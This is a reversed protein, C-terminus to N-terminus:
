SGLHPEPARSCWGLTKEHLLCGHDRTLEQGVVVEGGNELAWAWATVVTRSCSHWRTSSWAVSAMIDASPLWRLPWTGTKQTCRALASGLCGSTRCSFPVRPLPWGEVSSAPEVGREARGGGQCGLGALFRGQQDGM